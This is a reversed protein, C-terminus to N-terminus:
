PTQIPNVPLTNTSVVVEVPKEEKRHPKLLEDVEEVTLLPTQLEILDLGKQWLARGPIQALDKARANGLVVLSSHMDSMPFCIKGPLNAKIQTDLARADPRQTGIILHLGAARGQRALKSIIDRALQSDKGSVLSSALFLESVEDIVIVKRSFGTEPDLAGAINRKQDQESLSLFGDIDKCNSRKLIGTRTTLEGLVKQLRSITENITAAVFIRKTQTFLQFELGDKLDILLFTYKPNNLYLTMIIQRLVTSKGGGTQGAVLIHPVDKLSAKHTGTRSIGVTFTNPEINSIGELRILSPMPTHSYIVDVTGKERNEQIDDIYVQLASELGSSSKKFQDLSLGSRSLRLKRTVNDIPLDFIYGPYKGFTTKLGSIDFAEKLRKTFKKKLAVQYMGWIFFGSTALMLVYVLRFWFSEPYIKMLHLKRWPWQDIGFFLFACLLMGFGNCYTIPMRTTRIAHYIEMFVEVLIGGLKFFKEGLDANKLDSLYRNSKQM